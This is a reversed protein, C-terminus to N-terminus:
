RDAAKPRHRILDMFRRAYLAPLPRDAMEPYKGRIFAETTVLRSLTYRLKKAIGPFSNMDQWARSLAPSRVFYSSNRDKSPEAQLADMEGSSIESGLDAQAARVASLCLRSIGMVKTLEALVQWDPDKLAQALLHIDVSWILRAPDFFTRGDVFYPANLQMARHLCTHILLRARDMTWAHPSLRPLPRANDWCDEFPLMDNLSPANMVQWHLDIVHSGGDPLDLIWVQQLAFEPTVGGLAGAKYGRGALLATAKSVDHRAVLVDSDSRSRYAPNDYLDYATATGKMLLARIGRGDLDALLDSLLQRHRLEWMARARAHDRLCDMVQKPWTVLKDGREVVLGAVGHFIAARVMDDAQVDGWDTPGHAQRDSLAAALLDRLEPDDPSM